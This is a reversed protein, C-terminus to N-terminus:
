YVWSFCGVQLHNVWLTSHQGEDCCEFRIQAHHTNLRSENLCVADPTFDTFCWTEFYFYLQNSRKKLYDYQADEKHKFKVKLRWICTYFYTVNKIQQKQIPKKKEKERQKRREKETTKSGGGRERGESHPHIVLLSVSLPSCQNIQSSM